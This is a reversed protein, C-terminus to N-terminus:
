PTGMSNMSSNRSRYRPEVQQMRVSSPVVLNKLIAVPTRCPHMRGGNRKRIARSKKIHRDISLSSPPMENPWRCRASRSKASSMAKIPDVCFFGATKVVVNAFPAAFIPRLILLGSVLIMRIPYTREFTGTNTPCCHISSTSQNVYRPLTRVLSPFASWSTLQLSPLADATYWHRRGIQSEDVSAKVILIRSRFLITTGVAIYAQSVHLIDVLM